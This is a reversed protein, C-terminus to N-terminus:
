VSKCFLNEIKMILMNVEQFIEGYKNYM